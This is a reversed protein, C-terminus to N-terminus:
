VINSHDCNMMNELERTCEQPDSHILTNLRGEDFGSLPTDSIDFDDEKFCSFWKRATSEGINNDGFVIFINRAAEVAKAERNFEFLTIQQFHEFKEM